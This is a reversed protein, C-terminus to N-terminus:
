RLGGVAREQAALGVRRLAEEVAQQAKNPDDFKMDAFDFIHIETGDPLVVNVAGKDSPSTVTAVGSWPGTLATVSVEWYFRKRCDGVQVGQLGPQM